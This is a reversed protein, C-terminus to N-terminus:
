DWLNGLHDAVWRLADQALSLRQAEDEDLARRLMEAQASGRTTAARHWASLLDDPTGASYRLLAGANTRLAATWNDMTEFEDTGPWGHADDALQALMGGLVECLHTDLRWVDEDGWGRNARQTAQRASSVLNALRWERAQRALSLWWPDPTLTSEIDRQEQHDALTLDKSLFIRSGRAGARRSEIDAWRPDAKARRRRRDFFDDMAREAIKSPSVALNDITSTAARLNKWIDM